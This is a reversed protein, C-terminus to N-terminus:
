LGGPTNHRAGPRCVPYTLSLGFEATTKELGWRMRCLRFFSDLDGVSLVLFSLGAEDVDRRSLLHSSLTAFCSSVDPSTEAVDASRRMWVDSSLLSLRVAASKPEANTDVSSLADL